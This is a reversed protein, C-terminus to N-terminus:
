LAALDRKLQELVGPRRGKNGNGTESIIKELVAIDSNLKREKNAKVYDNFENPAEETFWKAMEKCFKVWEKHSLSRWDRQLQRKIFFASKASGTLGIIGAAKESSM